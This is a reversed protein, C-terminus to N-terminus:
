KHRRICYVMFNGLIPLYKFIVRLFWNLKLEKGIDRRVDHIVMFYGFLTIPCFLYLTAWKTYGYREFLVANRYIPVWAKWVPIGLVKFLCMYSFIDVLIIVVLALIVRPAYFSIIYYVQDSTYIM